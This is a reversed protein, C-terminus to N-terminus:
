KSLGTERASWRMFRDQFDADCGPGVAAHLGWTLRQNNVFYKLFMPRWPARTPPALWGFVEAPFFFSVVLDPLPRRAVFASQALHLGGDWVPARNNSTWGSSRWLMRRYVVSDRKSTAGSTVLGPDHLVVPHNPLKRRLWRAFCVNAIKSDWYALFAHPKIGPAHWFIRKSDCTKKEAFRHQGLAGFPPMLRMLAGNWAGQSTTVVIAAGPALHPLLLETLLFHGLHNAAMCRDHGSAAVFEAPTRNLIISSPAGQGPPPGYTFGANLYLLDVRPVISRLQAAFSRVSSFNALDASLPTARGLANSANQKLSAASAAARERSPSHVVVHAGLNLLISAAEYGIGSSSGTVVAVKGSLSTPMDLGHGPYIADRRELGCIVALLLVLSSALFTCARLCCRLLCRWWRAM